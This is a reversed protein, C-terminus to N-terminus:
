SADKETAAAKKVTKPTDKKTNKETASKKSAKKPTVVQKQSLDDVFSITAMQVGDGRRLNTRKIRLHGSTRGSSAPAVTEFLKEVAKDTTLFPRIQRRNHLGGQKAKTILKELYPRVTKAKPLTTEIVEQEILSTALGKMLARRQDRKRGFKKAQVSM